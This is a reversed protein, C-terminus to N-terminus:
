RPKSTPPPQSVKYIQRWEESSKETFRKYIMPMIENLLQSCANAVVRLCTRANCQTSTSRRMPSRRCKPRLPAQNGDAAHAHVTEVSMGWPENNTAERVKAEMETFNM